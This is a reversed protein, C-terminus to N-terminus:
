KNNGKFYIGRELNPTAAPTFQYNCQYLQIGIVSTELDTFEVHFKHDLLFIISLKIFLKQQHIPM